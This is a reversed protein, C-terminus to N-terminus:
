CARAATAVKLEDNVTFYDGESLVPKNATFGAAFLSLGTQGAGSVSGNPGAYGSLPSPHGPVPLRFINEQGRLKMLFSRIMAADYQDLKPLKAEFSWLAYPLVLTQRKGTYKSRLVVSARSFRLKANEFALAPPIPIVSSM